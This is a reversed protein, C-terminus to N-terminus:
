FEFLVDVQAVLVESLAVILGDHLRHRFVGAAVLGKLLDRALRLLLTQHEERLELVLRDELQRVRLRVVREAATVAAARVRWRVVTKGAVLGDPAHVADAGTAGAHAGVRTSM